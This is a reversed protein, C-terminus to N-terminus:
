RRVSISNLNTISTFQSGVPATTFGSSVEIKIWFRNVGNVNNKQWDQPSSDFDDFLLVEKDSSDLHYAGSSPTFSKWNSGDFYAYTVLGGLGALSLLM